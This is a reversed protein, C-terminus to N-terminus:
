FKRTSDKAEITTYDYHVPVSASALVHDITIGNSYGITHNEYKTLDHYSDFTVTTGEQVDVTILLLRPEPPKTKLSFDKLYKKELLRRLPDNNYLYGTNTPDLFKRDPISSPMDYMNKAGTMLLQKVSYYRRAAEVNAIDRNIYRFSNWRFDFSPDM